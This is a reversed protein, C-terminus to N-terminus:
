DYHALVAMVARATREWDFMRARALGRQRLTERLDRDALLRELADAIHSPSHANVMLAAVQGSGASHDGVAEPLSSNDGCVVPVGSAMAELPPLGFGEYISPYVLLQAGRMIAPLDAQAVFGLLRAGLAHAQAELQANGWHQQGVIILSPADGLREKLLRYASLLGMLNKRPHINSVSLLYVGSLGYRARIADDNPAPVATFDRSVGPYVVVIRDPAVNPYFKQFEARVFESLVIVYRAQRVAAGVLLRMYVRISLPYSQPLSRFSLDHAFVVSQRPAILPLFFTSLFWDYRVRRLVLSQQWLLYPMRRYDGTQIYHTKPRAEPSAYHAGILVHVARAQPESTLGDLLGQLYSENGGRGRGLDIGNIALDLM